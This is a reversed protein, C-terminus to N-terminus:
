RKQLEIKFLWWHASLFPNSDVIIQYVKILLAKHVLLTLLSLSIEAGTIVPLIHKSETLNVLKFMNWGQHSSDQNPVELSDLKVCANLVAALAATSFLALEASWISLTDGATTIVVIMGHVRRLHAFVRSQCSSIHHVNLFSVSISWMQVDQSKNSSKRWTQKNFIQNIQGGWSELSSATVLQKSVFHRPQLPSCHWSQRSSALLSHEETLAQCQLDM